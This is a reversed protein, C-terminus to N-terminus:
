HGHCECGHGCSADELDEAQPMRGLEFTRTVYQNISKRVDHIEQQAEIFASAVANKLFAERQREFTEVEEKGLPLGREQKEELSQRTLNMQQYLELAAPDNQFSEVRDRIGKFEPQEVIAQCLERTKLGVPSAPSTM